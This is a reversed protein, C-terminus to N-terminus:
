TRCSAAAIGVTAARQVFRLGLQEDFHQRWRGGGEITAVLKRRIAPQTRQL